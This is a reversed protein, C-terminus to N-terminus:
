SFTQSFSVLFDGWRNHNRRMREEIWEMKDDGQGEMKEQISEMVGDKEGEIRQESQGM